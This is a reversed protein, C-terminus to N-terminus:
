GLNHEVIDNAGQGSGKAGSSHAVNSMVLNYNDQYFGIWNEDCETIINGVVSSYTGQLLIGTSNGSGAGDIVNGNCTIRSTTPLLWIGRRGSLGQTNFSIINDNVTCQYATGALVVGYSFSYIDVNGVISNHHGNTIIAAYTGSTSRDHRCSLQSQSVLCYTCDNMSVPIDCAEFRGGIYYVGMVGNLYLGYKYGYIQCGVFLVGDAQNDMIFGFGNAWVWDKLTNGM